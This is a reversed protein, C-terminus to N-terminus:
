RRLIFDDYSDLKQLNNEQRVGADLKLNKTIPLSTMLYFALLENSARYSNKLYTIEGISIGGSNNINQPEFLVSAPAYTLISKISNIWLIDLIEPM